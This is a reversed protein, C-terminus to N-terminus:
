QNSSRLHVEDIVWKGIFDCKPIELIVANEFLFKQFHNEHSFDCRQKKEPYVKILKFRNLFTSPHCSTTRHRLLKHCKCDTAVLGM